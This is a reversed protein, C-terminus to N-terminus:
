RWAVLERMRTVFARTVRYAVDPDQWEFIALVVLAQWSAIIQRRTLPRATMRM